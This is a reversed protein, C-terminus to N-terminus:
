SCRADEDPYRHSAAPDEDPLCAQQLSRRVAELMNLAKAIRPLIGASAPAGQWPSTEVFQDRAQVLQRDVDAPRPDPRLRCPCKVIKLLSAYFDRVAKTGPTPADVIARELNWAEELVREQEAMAEWFRTPDAPAEALHCIEPGSAGEDSEPLGLIRDLDKALAELEHLCQSVDPGPRPGPLPAAGRIVFSPPGAVHAPAPGWFYSGAKAALAAAALALGTAQCCRGPRAESGRGPGANETSPEGVREQGQTNGASLLNAGMLAIALTFRLAYGDFLCAPESGMIM